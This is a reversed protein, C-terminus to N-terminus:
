AVRLRELEPIYAVIGHKCNPHFLGAAKADDLTYEVGEVRGVLSVVRNEWPRCLECEEPADPIRGLSVNHAGLRDVTGQLHAQAIGTRAAMNAYRGLKWPRGLRDKFGVVGQREFSALIRNSVNRRTEVGSVGLELAESVVRRYVDMNQRLIAFHTGQLGRVISRELALV